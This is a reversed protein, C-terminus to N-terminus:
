QIQIYQGKVWARARYTSASWSCGNPVIASQTVAKWPTESVAMRVGCAYVAASNGDPNSGSSAITVIMPYGSNNTGSTGINFPPTVVVRGGGGGWRNNVCSLISGDNARKVEGITGCWNGKTATGELFISESIRVDRLLSTADPDLSYAANDSDELRKTRIRGNDAFVNGGSTVLDGGTSTINGGATVWGNISANRNVELDMGSRLDNGSAVDRAAIVDVGSNVNGGSNVDGSATVSGTAEIDGQVKLLGLIEQDADIIVANDALTTTSGTAGYEAELGKRKGLYLNDNGGGVNYIRAVNVLQRMSSHVNALSADTAPIAGPTSSMEIAHHTVNGHDVRLWNDEAGNTSAMMVLQDRESGCLAGMAPPMVAIDPCYIISANGSAGSNSTTFTGSAVLAAMGLIGANNENAATGAMESLVTRAAYGASTDYDITTVFSMAGLSTKGGTGELFKCPVYDPTPPLMPDSCQDNKLWDVGTYVKPYDGPAPVTGSIASLHKQVGANYTFLEVAGLKRAQLQDMELKNDQMKITTMVAAVSMVLMLEILTFGASM